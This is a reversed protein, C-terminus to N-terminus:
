PDGGAGCLRYCGCGYPPFLRVAPPARGQWTAHQGCGACGPLVGSGHRYAGRSRTQPMTRLFSYGPTM